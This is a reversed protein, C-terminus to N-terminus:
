IDKNWPMQLFLTVCYITGILFLAFYQLGWFVLCNQEISLKM